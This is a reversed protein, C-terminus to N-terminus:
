GTVSSSLTKDTVSRNTTSPSFSEDDDVDFDTNNGLFIDTRDRTFDLGFPPDLNSYSFSRYAEHTTRVTKSTNITPLSVVSSTM